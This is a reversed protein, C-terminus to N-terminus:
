KNVKVSVIENTVPISFHIYYIHYTFTVPVTICTVKMKPFIDLYIEYLIEIKM